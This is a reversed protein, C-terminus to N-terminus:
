APGGAVPTLLKYTMHQGSASFACGVWHGADDYWLDVTLSGTVRIHEAPIRAGGAEITERGLSTVRVALRAGTETNIMDYSALAPRTWWTTPAAGAPFMTEGKAGTVKLGDSVLAAEVHIRQGNKTTSCDLDALAGARWTERCTQQYHFLSIPGFSAQLDAATQVTMAGDAQSVTVSQRGFPQGERLVEFEVRGATSPTASSPGVPSALAILALWSLGARWGGRPAHPGQPM